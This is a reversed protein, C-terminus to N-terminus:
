RLCRPARRQTGPLPICAAHGGGARFSVLPLPNQPAKPDAVLPASHPPPPPLLSAAASLPLLPLPLPTRSLVPSWAPVASCAPSAAGMISSGAGGADWDWCGGGWGLGLMGGWGLGLMRGLMGEVKGELMGWCGLAM